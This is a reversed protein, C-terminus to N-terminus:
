ACILLSLTSLGVVLYHGRTGSECPVLCLQISDYEGFVNGLPCIKSIGENIVVKLDEPSTLPACTILYIVTQDGDDLYSHFGNCRPARM